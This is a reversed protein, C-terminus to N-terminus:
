VLELYIRKFVCFMREIANKNKEGTKISIRKAELFIAMSFSILSFVDFDIM